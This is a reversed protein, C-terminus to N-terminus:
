TTGKQGSPSDAEAAVAVALLRNAENEMECIAIPGRYTGGNIVQCATQMADLFQVTLKRRKQNPSATVWCGIIFAAAERGQLKPLNV